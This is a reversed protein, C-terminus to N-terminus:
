KEMRELVAKKLLSKHKELIKAREKEDSICFLEVEMGYFLAQLQSSHFRYGISDIFKEYRTQFSDIFIKAIKEGLKDKAEKLTTGKKAPITSSVTSLIKGYCRKTEVWAEKEDDYYEAIKDNERKLGLKYAKAVILYDIRDPLMNLLDEWKASSFNNKLIVLEETSWKDAM